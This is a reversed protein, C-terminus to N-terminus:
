GVGLLDHVERGFGDPNPTVAPAGELVRAFDGVEWLRDQCVAYEAAPHGWIALERGDFGLVHGTMGRSNESALFSVVPAVAEPAGFREALQPGIELLPAVM